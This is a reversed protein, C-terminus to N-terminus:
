RSPRHAGSRLRLLSGRSPGRLKKGPRLRPLESLWDNEEMSLVRFELAHVRGNMYELKEELKRLRKERRASM